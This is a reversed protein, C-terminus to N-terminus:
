TNPFRYQMLDYDPTIKKIRALLADMSEQGLDKHVTKVHNTYNEVRALKSNCIECSIKSKFHSDRIHTRLHKSSTYTKECHMCAHDRIGQHLNEHEKMRYYIM